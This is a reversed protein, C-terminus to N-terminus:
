EEIIVESDWRGAMRSSKVHYWNKKLHSIPNINYGNFNFEIYFKKNSNPFLFVIFHEGAGIPKLGREHFYIGNMHEVSGNKYEILQFENDSTQQIIIEPNETYYLFVHSIEDIYMSDKDSAFTNFTSFVIFSFAMFVIM